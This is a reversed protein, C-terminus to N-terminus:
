SRSAERGIAQPAGHAFTRTGFHHIFLDCCCLTFGAECAKASLIDTDFPSMDTWPSDDLLFGGLRPEAVEIVGFPGV